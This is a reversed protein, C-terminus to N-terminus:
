KVFSIRQIPTGDIRRHNPMGVLGSQRRTAGQKANLQQAVPSPSMENIVNREPVTSASFLMLTSLGVRNTVVGRTTGFGCYSLGRNRHLSISSPSDFPKVSCTKM